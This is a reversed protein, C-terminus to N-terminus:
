NLGWSIPIAADYQKTDCIKQVWHCIQEKEANKNNLTKLMRRTLGLLTSVPRPNNIHHIINHYRKANTIM